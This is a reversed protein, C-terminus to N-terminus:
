CKSASKKNYGAYYNRFIKKAVGKKKGLNLLYRYRDLRDNPITASCLSIHNKNGYLKSVHCLAKTHNVGKFFKGCWHCKWGNVNDKTTKEVYSDDWVYSITPLGTDEEETIADM